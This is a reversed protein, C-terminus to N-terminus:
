IVARLTNKISVFIVDTPYIYVYVGMCFFVKNECIQTGKEKGARVQTFGTM